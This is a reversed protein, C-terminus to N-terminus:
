SSRSRPRPRPAGGALPDHPALRRGRRAGPPRALSRGPRRRRRRDGRPRLEPGPPRPHVRPRLHGERDRRDRGVPSVVFIEKTEPDYFGAVQSGLLDVYLEGPRRGGPPAGAGAADGARDRDRRRPQGQPVAGRDPVAARGRLPDDAGPAAEGGPRARRRGPGRDTATSRRGPGGSPVPRPRPPRRPQDVRADRNPRGVDRQPRPPRRHRAPAAPPSRSRLGAVVCRPSAPPVFRRGRRPTSSTMGRCEQM